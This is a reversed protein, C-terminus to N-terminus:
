RLEVGARVDALQIGAYRTTVGWTDAELLLALSNALRRELTVGAIWAAGAAARGFGSRTQVTVAELTTVDIYPVDSTAGDGGTHGMGVGGRLSARWPGDGTGLSVAPVVAVLNWVPHDKGFVSVLNGFEDRETRVVAPTESTVEAWAGDLEFSLHADYPHALSARMCKGVRAKVDADDPRVRWAPGATVRLRWANSADQPAAERGVPWSAGALLALPPHIVGNVTAGQVVASADLAIRSVLPVRVGAALSMTVGAGGVRVEPPAAPDPRRDNRLLPPLTTHHVWDIGTAGELSCQAPGMRVRRALGVELVAREVRSPQQIGAPRTTAVTAVSPGGSPFQREWSARVFPELAQTGFPAVRLAYAPGPNLARDDRGAPLAAGGLLSIAPAAQAVSAALAALLLQALMRRVSM